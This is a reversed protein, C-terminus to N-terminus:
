APIEAGGAGGGGPKGDSPVFLRDKAVDTAKTATVLNEAVHVGAEFYKTYLTKGKGPVQIQLRRAAGKIANAFATSPIELFGDRNVHMRARWTREEYDNANEKPKKPHETIDINKSQSYPTSSELHAKAIHM